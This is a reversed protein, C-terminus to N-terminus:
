KARAIERYIEAYRASISGATYGRVNAFGKQVLDSRLSPENLLREVGSRIASRDFPDIKLAGDGAV